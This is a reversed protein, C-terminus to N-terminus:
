LRALHCIARAINQDMESAPVSRLVDSGKAQGVLKIADVPRLFRRTVAHSAVSDPLFAGVCLAVVTAVFLRPRARSRAPM